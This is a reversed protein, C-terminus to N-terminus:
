EKAAISWSGDDYLYRREIVARLWDDLDSVTNGVHWVRAPEGLLLVSVPFEAILPFFGRQGPPFKGDWERRMRLRGTVKTVASLNTRRTLWYCEVGHRAYREQRAIFEDVTQYSRQLEVAITRGDYQFLTDAQWEDGPVGGPVEEEGTVGISKMAALVEAKGEIHWQTEPATDCEDHLHAFFQIGRVSTKPIAPTLCCPMLYDGVSSCKKLNNWEAPSVVEAEIPVGEKTIASSPM